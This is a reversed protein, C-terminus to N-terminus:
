LFDGAQVGAVVRAAVESPDIGQQSTLGALAGEVFDVDDGGKAALAGPRNRDSGAIRTNVAGPCLASVGIPIGAARLDHALSEAVAYAGFKSTQYPGSFAACALGARSSTVVVHGEDGGEIMRPVFAKVAHIVGWLNVGLVWQWDEVSREWSIGGQFVGANACVLHAAGFREYTTAALAEVADADSVDCVLAVADTGAVTEDLARAEVDAAVVSMGDDVFRRVLARGIGSGAGTVVAVRGSLQEM